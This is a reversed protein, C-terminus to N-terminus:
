RPTNRLTDWLENIPKMTENSLLQQIAIKRRAEEEEFRGAFHLYSHMPVVYVLTNKWALNIVKASSYARDLDVDPDISDLIEHCLDVHKHLAERLEDIKRDVAEHYIDKSYEM